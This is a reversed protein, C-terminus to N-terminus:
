GHSRDFVFLQWYDKLQQNAPFKSPIDINSQM